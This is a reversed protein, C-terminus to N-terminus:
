FLLSTYFTSYDKTMGHKQVRSKHSTVKLSTYSGLDTGKYRNCDPCCYALNQLITTGNHKLARIHDVQFPLAFGLDPIGCYECRFAARHAVLLRLIAPVYSM